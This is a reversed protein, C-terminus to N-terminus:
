DYPVTLYSPLYTRLTHQQANNRHLYFLLLKRKCDISYECSLSVVLLPLDKSVALAKRAIINIAHFPLFDICNHQIIHLKDNILVFLFAIKWVLPLQSISWAPGWFILSLKWVYWIKCHWSKFDWKTTCILSSVGMFIFLIFLHISFIVDWRFFFTFSLRECKVFTM